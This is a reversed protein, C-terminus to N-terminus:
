QVELQINITEATDSDFQISIVGNYNGSNLNNTDVWVEIDKTHNVNLICSETSCILWDYDNHISVSYDSESINAITFVKKKSVVGKNLKGFDLSLPYVLTKEINSKQVIVDIQIIEIEDLFKSRIFISGKHLGYSISRINIRIPITITSNPKIEFEPQSPSIWKSDQSILGEFIHKRNENKLIINRTVGYENDNLEEFDIIPTELVVDSVKAEYNSDYIISALFIDTESGFISNKKKPLNSSTTNGAILVTNNYVAINSRTENDSGGIYQTWICRGQSVILSLFIDTTRSNGSKSNVKNLINSSQTTGSVFLLGNEFALSPDDERKSGGVFLSWIVELEQSFCAVFLDEDGNNRGKSNPLTTSSSRGAIFLVGDDLIIDFGYDNGSSGFLLSVDAQGNPLIKLMFADKLGSAKNIENPLSNSDTFGVCFISNKHLVLDKLFDDRNGGYYRIWSISGDKKIKGYFGDASGNDNCANVAEHFDNSYTYGVIFIDNQNIEIAEIDDWDSGGIYVSMEVVGEDTLKGIFGDPNVLPADDENSFHNKKKPLNSSRTQGAFYIGSIDKILSSNYDNHDGGFYATWEIEGNNRMKCILVDAEGSYHNKKKFLTPSWTHGSIYIYDGDFLLDGCWDRKMGGIYETWEILPDIILKEDIFPEKLLDFHYTNEESLFLATYETGSKEGYVKLETDSISGIPTALKIGEPHISVNANDVQWSIDKYSAGPYVHFEYKLSKNDFFYLLDINQWVDRYIITSFNHCNEGWKEPKDGIYYNTYHPLQQLPEPTSNQSGVFTLQITHPSFSSTEVFDDKEFDSVHMDNAIKKPIAFDTKILQYYIKDKAFIVNGFATNGAFLIEEDWQGKNETFYYTDVTLGEPNPSVDITPIKNDLNLPLSDISQHQEEQAISIPLIISLGLLLCVTIVM